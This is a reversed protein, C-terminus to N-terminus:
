KSHPNKRHGGKWKGLKKGNKDFQVLPTIFRNKVVHKRHTRPDGSHGSLALSREMVHSREIEKHLM